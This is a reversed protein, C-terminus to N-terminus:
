HVAQPMNCLIYHIGGVIKFFLFTLCYLTGHCVSCISTEDDDDWCCYNISCHMNCMTCVKLYMFFLTLLTINHLQSCMWLKILWSLLTHWSINFRWSKIGNKHIEDVTILPALQTCHVDMWMSCFFLILIPITTSRLESHMWLRIFWSIVTHWNM